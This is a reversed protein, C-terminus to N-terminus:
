GLYLYLIGIQRTFRNTNYENQPTDIVLPTIQHVDILEDNTIPTINGILIFFLKLLTKMFIGTNTPVVCILLKIDALEQSGVTVIGSTPAALNPSYFM